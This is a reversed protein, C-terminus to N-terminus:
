PPHDGQPPRTYLTVSRCSCRSDHAISLRADDCYRTFPIGKVYEMVFFPRGSEMMGGDLVKAINPHDMLALAQREAEFRSLVTKSDMGTKILKLAVKRAGAADARCGLRHGHGGRWDSRPAQLPGRHHHRTARESHLGRDASPQGVDGASRPRKRAPRTRGFPTRGRGAVRRRQRLPRHSISGTGLRSAGRRCPFPGSRAQCDTPM